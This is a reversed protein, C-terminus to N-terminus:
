QASPNELYAMITDVNKNEKEFRIGVAMQGEESFVRVVKCKAKAVLTSTERAYFHFYCTDGSCVDIEDKFILAAGSKSLDKIKVARVGCYSCYLATYHTEKRAYKRKDEM